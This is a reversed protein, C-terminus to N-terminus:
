KPPQLGPSTIWEAMRAVIEDERAKRLLDERSPGPPLKKAEERLRKAEEALREELTLIQKIRRRRQM